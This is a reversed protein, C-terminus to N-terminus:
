LRFSSLGRNVLFRVHGYLLWDVTIGPLWAILCGRYWSVVIGHNFQDPLCHLIKALFRGGMAERKLLFTSYGVDDVGVLPTSQSGALVFHGSNRDIEDEAVVLLISLVADQM